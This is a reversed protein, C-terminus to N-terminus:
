NQNEPRRIRVYSNIETNDIKDVSDDFLRTSYSILLDNIQSEIERIYSKSEFIRQNICEIEKNSLEYLQLNKEYEKEKEKISTELGKFKKDKKWFRTIWEPKVDKILNYIALVTGSIITFCFTSLLSFLLGIDGGGFAFFSIIVGILSLVTLIIKLKNNISNFKAESYQNYRTNLKNIENKLSDCINNLENSKIKKRSLESKDQNLVDDENIKYQILEDYKMKYDQFEM